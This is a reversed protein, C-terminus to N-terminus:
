AAASLLAPNAGMNAFKAGMGGAMAPNMGGGMAGGMGGGGMAGAGQMAMQILRSLLNGPANAKNMALDGMGAGFQGAQNGFNGAMSAGTGYINESIGIGSLFKQMMDQLFQQRDKNMINSGSTEINNLAASSGLLGQSSAGQLGEDRATQMSQKAYPSTSYKSMWDNLLTEPHLLQNEAGMLNGYQSQGQNIFPEQYGKAMNFYKEMMKQAEDYGREPHFFSSFMNGIKGGFPVGYNFDM